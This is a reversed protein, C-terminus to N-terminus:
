TPVAVNATKKSSSKEKKEVVPIEPKEIGLIDTIRLRTLEQFRCEIM